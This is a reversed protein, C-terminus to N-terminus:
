RRGAKRKPAISATDDGRGTLPPALVLTPVDDFARGVRGQLLFELAVDNRLDRIEGAHQGDLMRVYM